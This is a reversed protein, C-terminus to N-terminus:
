TPTTRTPTQGSRIAEDVKMRRRRRRMRSKREEEEEVKRAKMVVEEAWRRQGGGGGYRTCTQPFHVDLIRNTFFEPCLDGAEWCYVTMPPLTFVSLSGSKVKLLMLGVHCWQVWLTM